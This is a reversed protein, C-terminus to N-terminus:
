NALNRLFSLQASYYNALDPPFPQMAEVFRIAETIPMLKPDPWADEETEAQNTLEEILGVFFHMDDGRFQKYRARQKDTKAWDPPWISVVHGLQETIRVRAGTEELTERVLADAPDEGPEVGGGPFILYGKDSPRALINGKGDTFYGESNPRLPLTDRPTALM